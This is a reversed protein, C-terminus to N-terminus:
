RAPSGWKVVVLSVGQKPLAFDVETKGGRSGVQRPAELQQL